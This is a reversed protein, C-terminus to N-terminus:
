LGLVKEIEKWFRGNLSLRLQFVPISKTMNVANNFLCERIKNQEDQTVCLPSKKLVHLVSGIMFFPINVKSLQVVKDSSDQRLFFIAYIPVSYRVDWTNEARKNLYDSCTPFPHARYGGNKDLVVLTEDDCLPKWHSPLRRCCTSKGKGGHAILLVGKGDCEALASHFPLGGMKISRYYVSQLSFWMAMYQNRYVDDNKFECIVDDSGNHNWISIVDHECVRWGSKILSERLESTKVNNETEKCFILKPSSNPLCEELRMIDAFKVSYGTSDKYGTIWWNNGDSLNLCYGKSYPYTIVDIM